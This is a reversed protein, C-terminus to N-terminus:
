RKLHNALSNRLRHRASELRAAVTRTDAGVIVAIEELELGEYESLILAEREFPPLGAVGKAIESVSEGDHAHGDHQNRKSMADLSAHDSNTLLEM